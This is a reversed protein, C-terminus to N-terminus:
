MVQQEYITPSCVTISHKGSYVLFHGASITGSREEFTVVRLSRIHHVGPVLACLGYFDSRHPLDGFGWGQQMSGGYLPHLFQGLREDIAAVVQGAEEVVRLVLEVEVSIRVYEPGIVILEPAPDRRSDLFRQVHQLLAANPLPKPHKTKPVIILSVVGLYYRRADPDAVLDRMPICKACAVEPSSLKALDEYDEQTVARSRHRVLRAGRECASGMDEVDFGGFAPLINTASEVYPIATRLQNIKGSLKNGRAGGGTQYRRLRLNNGGRPPIRGHRDDGFRVEGTQRDVTYHRDEPGSNLFDSVEQWQVWIERARGSEDRRIEVASGPVDRLIQEVESPLDAERVQLEIDRLIPTRTAYLCQHPTGDSSGLVEKELTVTHTALTTNRLIGRLQAIPAYSESRAVIRFWYLPATDAFDHRPSIEKPVIFSVLGSYTLMGTQDIIELDRWSSGSWYQWVLASAVTKSGSRSFPRYLRDAMQLFLTVSLNLFPSKASADFGLYLAPWQGCPFGFLPFTSGSRAQLTVDDHVRQNCTIAASPSDSAVDLQYDVTLSKISPPALTSPHHTLGAAPQQPNAM